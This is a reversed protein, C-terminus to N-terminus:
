LICTFFIRVFTVYRIDNLYEKVKVVTAYYWTDEDEYYVEITDDVKFKPERPLLQGGKDDYCTSTGEVWKLAAQMAVEHNFYMDCGSDPKGTYIQDMYSSALFDALRSNNGSFPNSFEKDLEIDDDSHSSLTALFHDRKSSDSKEKCMMMRYLMEDAPHPVVRVVRWGNPYGMQMALEEESETSTTARYFLMSNGTSEKSDDGELDGNSATAVSKNVANEEEGSKVVDLDMAGNCTDSANSPQEQKQERELDNSTAEVEM